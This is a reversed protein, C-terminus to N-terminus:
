NQTQSPTLGHLNSYMYYKRATIAIGIFFWIPFSFEGYLISSTFIRIVSGLAIARSAAAFLDSSGMPFDLYLNSFILLLGTFYILTAILGFSLFIQPVGMDLGSLYDLDKVFLGMFNDSGFGYGDWTKLATDWVKNFDETRTISSADNQLDTFTAFRTSIIKSFPELSSVIVSIIFILFFSPLFINQKRVKVSLFLTVISFLWSYWATRYITLLFAPYGLLMGLFKLKGKVISLIVLGPMLNIAFTFPSPMTGFVRIGLSEARGYYSDFLGTSKVMFETDWEPAVLFQFMGYGGMLIALWVYTKLISNHFSPYLRWNAYLHLALLIPTLTGLANGVASFYSDFPLRIFGVICGYVVSLFVMMFPLLNEDKEKYLKPLNKILTIVTLFTVLPAAANGGPVLTAIGHGILRPILPSVLWMWVVFNVYFIPYRRYLFIGVALSGLPFLPILITKAGIMLLAAISALFAIVAFWPPSIKFNSSFSNKSSFISV